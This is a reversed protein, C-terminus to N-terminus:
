EPFNMRRLLDDFRPDNRLPDFRRNYKLRFLQMDHKEYAKELWAFAQDKNGLQAYYMATSTPARDYRGKSRDLHWMWYGKPGSESYALGLAEIDEPPDGDLAMVKQLFRVSDEFKEMFEYVSAFGRYAVADNLDLELLRQWQALAQDHKRAHTYCHGLTFNTLLNFPDLRLTREAEAIAEDFRGVALLLWAYENTGVLNPNLTHARKFGEEAGAWDWDIYYKAAALSEHAEALSEDIELAKKALEMAQFRGEELPIHGYFGRIGYCNALGVYARAHRRDVKIAGRFCESARELEEKSMRNYHYWGKLYFDQAEPNVPRASTLRAQEEPTLIVQIEHAIAQAVEGSLILIDSFDRDYNDAWLNREPVAGILQATIKVREAVHLVSGAVLADVDLKRAIQALPKSSGKYQMVSRRATVRLTSIKSLETIFAETMGDSFYELNPDGTLNELPLVALSEIRGPGAGRLLQQRWRGINLGVVVAVTVFGIAMAWRWRPRVSALTTPAPLNLTESIEVAADAIDGLRRRPDKELCHRLLDRVNAPIEEPLMEWDPEREIIRALIETATDGDFALHGTLMEYMICGFSWTDSRRDTSKACAQEPSMYTPTGMIRGPQTVTIEATKGERASAKALGFDLVKVRGDPTIKINGPKLDRHIVGNEHAASVAEAIQLGISLAERLKLPERVIREALTEGPVYELILYGASEDQEIIEHIAAINPHNLSALLEAERRFRTRTSLDAQLEAPISKIAVSRKLKTDHALYVVGMGGRGIMEVIEFSGVTQGVLDHGTEADDFDSEDVQVLTGFLTDIKLLDRIRLRLLDECEPYQKVFEETDPQEGRLYADVFRKLAEELIRDQNNDSAAVM